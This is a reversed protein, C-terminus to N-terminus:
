KKLASFQMYDSKYDMFRMPTLSLISVLCFKFAYAYDGGHISGTGMKVSLYLFGLAVIALPPFIVAAKKKGNTMSGPVIWSFAIIIKKLTLVRFVIEDAASLLLVLLLHLLEELIFGSLCIFVTWANKLLGAIFLFVVAAVMLSVLIKIPPSNCNKIKYFYRRM